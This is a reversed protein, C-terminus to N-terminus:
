YHLLLYRLYEARTALAQRQLAPASFRRTRGSSRSRLYKSRETLKYVLCRVPFGQWRPNSRSSGVDSPNFYLYYATASTPSSYTSAVRSWGDGDFGFSRLASNNLNIWGSRVFDLSNYQIVSPSVLGVPM